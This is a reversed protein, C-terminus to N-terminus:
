VEYEDIYQKKLEINQSHFHFRRTFPDQSQPYTLTGEPQSLIGIHLNFLLSPIRPM